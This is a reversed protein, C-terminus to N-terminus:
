WRSHPRAIGTSTTLEGPIARGDIALIEPTPMDGTADVDGDYGSVVISHNELWGHSNQTPEDLFRQALCALRRLPFCIVLLESPPCGAPDSGCLLSPSVCAPCACWARRAQDEKVRDGEAVLLRVVEGETVGEGLDPLRFERAM